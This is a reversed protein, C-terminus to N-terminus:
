QHVRKELYSKWVNNLKEEQNLGEVMRCQRKKMTYVYHLFHISNCVSICDAPSWIRPERSGANLKERLTPVRLYSYQAEGVAYVAPRTITMAARGTDTKTIVRIGRDHGELSFVESICPQGLSFALLFPVLGNEGPSAQKGTIIVDYGGQEKVFAAITHAILEPQWSYDDVDTHAPHPLETQMTNVPMPIGTLDDFGLPFLNGFFRKECDGVTLGHLTVANGRQRVNEALRLATELGAEDYSGIIKKFVSIDLGGEQLSVLEEPTVDELDYVIKFCVLIRM